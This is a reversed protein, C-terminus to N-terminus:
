EGGENLEGTREFGISKYLKEAIINEPNCSLYIEKCNENQRLRKIVELAAARGYGKGQYKEDIM